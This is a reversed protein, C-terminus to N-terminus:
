VSGSWWRREIQKLHHQGHAIHFKRWGDATLPGLVPHDLIRTGQGFRRACEALLDNMATIQTGIQARVMAGDMGKPATMPPAKRGEPLYGVVTVVFTGFRDKLTPRRALPKGAELVRNLGKITGTYTLYLHELIDAVCWKGDPRPRSDEDSMATARSELERQLRLIAMVSAAPALQTTQMM